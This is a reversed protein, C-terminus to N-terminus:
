RSSRRTAAASLLAVLVLTWTAPEPIAAGELGSGSGPPNGFSSRWLNYRAAQSTLGNDNPLAANATDNKRWVPYDAADVKGNQNFDGPVGASALTLSLDDFFAGQDPNQTGFAGTVIIGVRVSQTGAPSTGSLSYDDWAQPNAGIPGPANRQGADWLDLTLPTGIVAQAGDLFALEMKTITTPKAPGTGGSYNQGFASYLSYTYNGGAVGAVTQTLTSDGPAFAKVWYGAAGGAIAANDAFSGGKGATDPNAGTPVEVLTYGPLEPPTPPVTNLDANALLETAPAGSRRLSFDDMMASQSPDANFVGSRMGATFRVSATQAPAAPTTASAQYWMNDNAFPGGIDVERDAKVDIEIPSGIPTGAGNLFEVSIFVDTPSPQGGRFPSSPDLDNVGGSFNQEFRSWGGFTYTDGAVGPVTQSLYGNNAYNTEWPPNTGVGCCTSGSWPKMWMGKTAPNEPPSLRDAFSEQGLSNVVISPADVNEEFVMWSPFDAATASAEFGPNTLLNQAQSSAAMMGVLGFAVIVLIQQKKM